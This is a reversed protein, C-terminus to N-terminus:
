GLSHIRNGRGGAGSALLFDFLYYACNKAM